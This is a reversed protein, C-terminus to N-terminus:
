RDNEFYKGGNLEFLLKDSDKIELRILYYEGTEFSIDEDEELFIEVIYNEFGLDNPEWEEDLYMIYKLDKRNDPDSGKVLFDMKDLEEISEISKISEIINSATLVAQQKTEARVNLDGSLLFMKLVLACILSLAAIAVIMEVLTFGNKNKCTIM